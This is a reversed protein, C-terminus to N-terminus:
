DDDAGENAGLVGLVQEYPAAEGANGAEDAYGQVQKALAANASKTPPKGDPDVAEVDDVGNLGADTLMRYRVQALATAEASGPAAAAIHQDITKIAKAADTKDSM